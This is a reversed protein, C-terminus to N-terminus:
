ILPNNISILKACRRNVEIWTEVKLTMQITTCTNMGPVPDRLLENALYSLAPNHGVIVAHEINDDILEVFNFLAQAEFSYLDDEILLPRSNPALKEYIIQATERARLASSSFMQDFSFDLQKLLAGMANAQKLGKNRLPRDFDRKYNLPDEAAGHRILTLLKM